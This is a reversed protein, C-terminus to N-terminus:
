SANEETPEIPDIGHEAMWAACAAAILPVRLEPDGFTTVLHEKAAGVWWLAAVGDVMHRRVEYRGLEM